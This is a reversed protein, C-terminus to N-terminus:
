PRRRPRDPQPRIAIGLSRMAPGTSNRDTKRNPVPLRLGAMSNKVTGPEGLLPVQATLEADNMTTSQDDAMWLHQVRNALSIADYLYHLALCYTGRVPEYCKRQFM